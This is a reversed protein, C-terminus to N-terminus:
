QVCVLEIETLEPWLQNDLINYTLQTSYLYPLISLLGFVFSVLMCVNRSIPTSKPACNNSKVKFQLAKLDFKIQYFHGDLQVRDRLLTRIGHHM